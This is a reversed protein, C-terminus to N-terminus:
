WHPWWQPSSTIMMQCLNYENTAMKVLHQVRDDPTPLPSGDASVGNLKQKVTDVPYKTGFVDLLAMLSFRNRSLINMTFKATSLFVGETGGIGLVSVMMRTMRFPVTEPHLTRNQASEFCESFDLHVSNGNSRMHIINYPNRDGLGLLYGVISNLATSIAFNTKQTFWAEASASKLWIAERLTNDPTSAVLERYKELRRINTAQLVAKDLNPPHLGLRRYMWQIMDGLTEGGTPLRLMGANPSLPIVPYREIHLNKEVGIKDNRIITNVLSFWQMVREDLKLNNRGYLLYHHESGDSGIICIKRPRKPGQTMEVMPEFRLITPGKVEIESFGPMTISFTAKDLLHSSKSTFDEISLPASKEINEKIGESVDNMEMKVQHWQFLPDGPQANLANEINVFKSNWRQHDLMKNIGSHELNFVTKAKKYYKMFKALDSTQDYISIAKDFFFAIQEASPFAIAVLGQTLTMAENYFGPSNERVYELFQRIHPGMPECKAMYSIPFAIAHLYDNSFRKIIDIAANRVSENPNEFQELLQFAIKEVCYPSLNKFFTSVLDANSGFCISCMQCLYPLSPGTLKILESFGQMANYAYDPRNTQYYLRLCGYAYLKLGRAMTPNKDIVNKSLEIIHQDPCQCRSCLSCVADAYIRPREKTTEIIELFEGLDQQQHRDFRVKAEILRIEDQEDQSSGRAMKIANEYMNWAGLKRTIDVLDMLTPHLLQRVLFLTLLQSTDTKIWNSKSNWISIVTDRDILEEAVDIVDSMEEFFTAYDISSITPEYNGSLFNTLTTDSANIKMGRELWHRASKLQKKEYAIVARLLCNFPRDIAFHELYHDVDVGLFRAALAFNPASIRKSELSLSNFRGFYQGIAQWDGLRASCNIFRVLENEGDDIHVHERAESWLSLQELIETNNHLKESVNFIGIAAENRHLDTHVRMSKRRIEDTLLPEKEYFRVCRFYHRCRYAIDGAVEPTFLNYGARDMVDIADAIFGIVDVPVEENQAVALLSESLAARDQDSACEWVSLLILPFVNGAFSPFGQILPHCSRIAPSKSCLVLSQAVHRLWTDWSNEFKFSNLSSSVELPRIQPPSRHPLYDASVEFTAPDPTHFEKPVFKPVKQALVSLLKRSEMSVKTEKDGDKTILSMALRVSPLLLMEQANYCIAQGLFRIAYLPTLSEATKRKIESFFLNQSGHCFIVLHTLIQLLWVEIDSDSKKSLLTLVHSFTDISFPMFSSKLVFILASLMKLAALNIKNPQIFPYVMDILTKTFPQIAIEVSLIISRLMHFISDCPVYHLVVGDCECMQTEKQSDPLLGSLIPILKDLFVTSKQADFQFIYLVANLLISHDSKPQELSKLIFPMVFELYCQERKVPDYLPLRAFGDVTDTLHFSIPEIPGITGMVRLVRYLMSHTKTQSVFEYLAKDVGVVNVKGPTTSRFVIRLTDLATLSLTDSGFLSLQQILSDVVRQLDPIEFKKTVLIQLSEMALVHISVMHKRNKRHSVKEAFTTPIGPRAELQELLFSVIDATFPALFTDAADLFTPWLMMIKKKFVLDSVQNFDNRLKKYLDFLVNFTILPSYERIKKLLHLIRVSVTSSHRDILTVLLMLNADEAFHCLLSDTVEDLMAIIVKNSKIDHLVFLLQRLKVEQWKNDNRIITMLAKVLNIKVGEPENDDYILPFIRKWVSQFPFSSYSEIKHIFVFAEEAAVNNFIKDAMITLLTFKHEPFTRLFHVTSDVLEMSLESCNQFIVLMQSPDPYDPDKDRYHEPYVSGLRFFTKEDKNEGKLLALAKKSCIPGIRATSLQAIRALDGCAEKLPWDGEVIKVLQDIHRNAGEKDSECLTAFVTLAKCDLYENCYNFMANFVDDFKENVYESHNKLLRSLILFPAVCDSRKRYSQLLVLCMSVMGRLLEDSNASSAVFTTYVEVAIEQIKLDEVKLATWIFTPLDKAAKQFLDSALPGLKNMLIVATRIANDTSRNTLFSSCRSFIRGLFTPPTLESLRAFLYAIGELVEVSHTPLLKELDTALQILINEGDAVEILFSFTLLSVYRQKSERQRLLNFAWETIDALANKRDEDSYSQLKTFLFKQINKREIDYCDWNKVVQQILTALSPGQVTDSDLKKQGKVRM